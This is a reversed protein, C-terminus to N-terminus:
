ISILKIRVQKLRENLERVQKEFTEERHANREESSELVRLQHTIAHLEKELEVCKKEANEYRTVARELEAETLMMRRAVSDCSRFFM